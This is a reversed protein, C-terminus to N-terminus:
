GSPLWAPDGESAAEDVVRVVVDDLHFAWGLRLLAVYEGPDIRVTLGEGDWRRVRDLSEDM